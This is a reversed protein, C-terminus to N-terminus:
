YLFAIFNISFAQGTSTGGGTVTNSRTFTITDGQASTFSSVITNTNSGADVAMDMASFGHGNVVHNQPNFTWNYVNGGAAALFGLNNIGFYKIRPNVTSWSAWADSTYYIAYARGGVSVATTVSTSGVGTQTPMTGSFSGTIVKQKSTLSVQTTSIAYGIKHAYTGPTLSLTGDTDSLFVPEGAIGKYNISFARDYTAEATWNTGSNSSTCSNGNAYVSTNNYNWCFSGSTYTSLYVVIAYTTGPTVAIPIGSNLVVDFSASFSTATGTALAGGTPLGASTAYVAVTLTGVLSNNTFSTLTVSSVNDQGAQPIFTQARWATTSSITDTTTNVTSNNEGTWTRANARQALSFTPVTVIGTPSYTIPNGATSAGTAVGAFLGFPNLTNGDAKVLRQQGDYALADGSSLTTNATGTTALNAIGSLNNQIATQMTANSSTDIGITLGENGAPSTVTKTLGTGVALKSNAYGSTTDTASIKFKDDVGAAAALQTLSVDSQATSKFHLDNGVKKIYNNADTFLIDGIMTGGTLPLFDDLVGWVVSPDSMIVKSGVSHTQVSPTDGNYRSQARGGIKVTVTKAVPDISEILVNEQQVAGTFGKKPNLTLIVEKGAPITCVPVKSLYITLAGTDADLKQVLTAEFNDELPVSISM